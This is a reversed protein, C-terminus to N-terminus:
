KIGIKKNTFEHLLNETVNDYTISQM